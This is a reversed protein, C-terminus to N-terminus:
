KAAPERASDAGLERRVIGHDRVLWFKLTRERRDKDDVKMTLKIEIRAADFQGGVTNIREPTAEITAEGEVETPGTKWKGKWESTRPAAFPLPALMIAPEFTESRTGIFELGNVSVRYREEDVEQGHVVFILRRVDGEKVFKTEVPIPTGALVLTAKTDKFDDFGLQRSDTVSFDAPAQGTAQPQCTGAFSAFFALAGFGLAVRGNM